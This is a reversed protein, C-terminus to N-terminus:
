FKLRSLEQLLNKGWEKVRQENNLLDFFYGDIRLSPRIKKLAHTEAFKELHDVAGCFYTYSRDGCGFIACPKNNYQEGAAKEMFAIMTEQPSGDGHGKVRWSPSGLLIGDYNQLESPSTLAAKKLIVEYKPALMAQLTRGVLYTGGSNSAYVIIIKKKM